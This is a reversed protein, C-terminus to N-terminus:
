LCTSHGHGGGSCVWICTCGDGVAQACSGGCATECQEFCGAFSTTARASKAYVSLGLGVVVAVALLIFRISRPM